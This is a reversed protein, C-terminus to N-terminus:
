RSRRRPRRAPRPWPPRWAISPSPTRPPRCNRRCVGSTRPARTPWRQSIAKRSPSTRLAVMRTVRDVQTRATAWIVGLIEQTSGAPRIAVAARFEIANGQWSDVQPQYVLATAGDLKVTRPWPDAPAPPAARATSTQAVTTGAWGFTGALALAAIILRAGARRPGYRRAAAANTIAHMSM